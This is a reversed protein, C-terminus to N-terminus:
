KYDKFMPNPVIDGKHNYSIIKYHHLKDITAAAGERVGQKYSMYSCGALCISFIVFEIM